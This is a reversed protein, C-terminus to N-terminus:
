PEPGGLALRTGPEARYLIAAAGTAGLHRAPIRGRLGPRTGDLHYRPTVDERQRGELRRHDARVRLLREAVVLREAVREDQRQGAQAERARPAPARPRERHCQDDQAPEHETQPHREVVEQVGPVLAVVRQNRAVQARVGEHRRQVVRGGARGGAGPRTAVHPQVLRRQSQPEHGARESQETRALQRYPQRAEQQERRRGPRREADARLEEIALHPQHGRPQVRDLSAQERLRRPPDRRIVRVAHERRQHRQPRERRQHLDALVAAPEREEHPHYGAERYQGLPQRPQQHQPEPAEGHRPVLPRPAAREVQPQSRHCAGHQRRRPMEVDPGHERDLGRHLGRVGPAMEPMRRLPVPAPREPVQRAQGAIEALRRRQRNRPEKQPARPPLAEHGRPEHNRVRDERQSRGLHRAVHHDGRGGHQEHDGGGEYGQALLAGQEAARECTGQDHQRYAERELPVLGELDTLDFALAGRAQARQVGVRGVRDLRHEVGSAAWRRCGAGEVFGYRPVRFADSSGSSIAPARRGASPRPTSRRSGGSSATSGRRRGAFLAAIQEAYEGQGRM